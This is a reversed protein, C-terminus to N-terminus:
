GDPLAGGFFLRPHVFGPPLPMNHMVCERVRSGVVLPFDGHVVNFDDDPVVVGPTDVDHLGIQPYRQALAAEVGANLGIAFRGQQCPRM